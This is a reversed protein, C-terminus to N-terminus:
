LTLDDPNGNGTMTFCGLLYEEFKHDELSSKWSGWCQVEYESQDTMGRMNLIRQQRNTKDCADANWLVVDVPLFREIFDRFLLVANLFGDM